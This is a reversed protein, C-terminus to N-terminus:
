GKDAISGAAALVEAPSAAGTGQKTVTVGAVIIGFRLAAETRAGAVLALALGAALSDGAGCPDVPEGAARAELLRTGDGDVLWAGSEGTSVVLAPGGIRRHLRGYDIEGFEEICASAAEAENPTAIVHRFRHVRRRSDAVFVQGPRVRAERCIAERVRATVVGGQDTEAQDAVVVADYNPAAALFRDILQREVDPELPTTNVFDVRPLDEVGTADNILKTYTFTRAAATEILLGSEIGMLGLARRLEHGYGDEGVAGLVSVRGAGLGVLNAAVTGGAGPTVATGTVAVRRIGTERSEEALKPDYRCWRDLCIDGGVLVSAGRASALVEACTM